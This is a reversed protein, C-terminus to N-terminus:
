FLQFYSLIYITAYGCHLEHYLDSNNMCSMSPLKDLPITFGIVFNFIVKVSVPVLRASLLIRRGPDTGATPLGPDTGACDNIIHLNM